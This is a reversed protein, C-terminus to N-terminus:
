DDLSGKGVARAGRPGERERDRIAERAVSWEEDGWERLDYFGGGSVLHQAGDVTITEGSLWECGPALLFTALNQLERCTESAAWRISRRPARAPNRAPACASARAKPRFCAPRSRM